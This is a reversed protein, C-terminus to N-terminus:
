QLKEIAYVTWDTSYRKKEVSYYIRVKDGNKLSSTRGAFNMTQFFKGDESGVSINMNTQGKFVVDSYWLQKGSDWNSFSVSKLREPYIELALMIDYPDTYIFNYPNIIKNSFANDLQRWYEDFDIIKYGAAVMVNEPKICPYGAINIYAFKHYTFEKGDKGVWTGVALYVETILNIFKDDTLYLIIPLNYDASISIRDEIYEPKKPNRELLFAHKPFQNSGYNENESEINKVDMVQFLVTGNGFDVITGLFRFYHIKGDIDWGIENLNNIDKYSLGEEIIEHNIKTNLSIQKGSFCKNLDSDVLKDFEEQTMQASIYSTFIVSFAVVVSFLKRKMGIEKDLLM